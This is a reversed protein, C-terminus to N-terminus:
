WPLCIYRNESTTKLVSGDNDELEVDTISLVSSFCGTVALLVKEQKTQLLDYM